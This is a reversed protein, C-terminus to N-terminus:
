GEQPLCSGSGTPWSTNRISGFPKRVTPSPRKMTMRRSTSMRGVLIPWPTNRISGSPRRTTRSPRTLNAKGYMPSAGSNTPTRRPWCSSRPSTRLLDSPKRITPSPRTMSARKNYACGRLAYAEPFKPDLRIAETYEAIALGFDEKKAAADGKKVAEVAPNSLTKRTAAIIAAILVVFALSGAIGIAVVRFDPRSPRRTASIPTSRPPPILQSRRSQLPAQLRCRRLHKTLNRSCGGCVNQRFGRPMPRTKVLTDTSIVGRQVLNRLEASSIPGVQKGAVQYFWQSAM